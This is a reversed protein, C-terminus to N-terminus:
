LRRALPPDRAGGQAQASIARLVREGLELLVERPEGSALAVAAPVEVLRPALANAARLTELQASAYARAYRLLADEGPEVAALESVVGAPWARNVIIARARLGHGELAQALLRAGQAEFDRPSTVLLLETSEEALWRQAVVLRDLLRQLPATALAFFDALQAILGVGAIRGFAGLVRRAGFRLVSLSGASAALRLWRILTGNLLSEVDHPYRLFDVASGGPATDVVLEQLGPDAQAWEAIRAAALVDIASALRDSLAGFFPNHELADLAGADPLDVAAWRRLAQQPHLIAARLGPAGPVDAEVDGLELGLADHLRRSPDIGLLGVRRGSRALALAYGAALTTKGVGGAGLLVHLRASM